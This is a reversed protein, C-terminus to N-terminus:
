NRVQLPDLIDAVMIMLSPGGMPVSFTTRNFNTHQPVQALYIPAHWFAPGDEDSLHPRYM